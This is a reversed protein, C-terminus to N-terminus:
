SNGVERGFIGEPRILLVVVLLILATMGQYRPNYAMVVLTETFGIIYAGVISGRVSGLGGLIVIAFSLVLQDLGMNWSGTNLMMLLVGAFGALGAAIMWTYLNIRESNIGVLKAGKSSMSTALLAKGTKTYNVFVFIGAIIAWALVFIVLRFNNIEHGSVITTGEVLQTASITGSSIFLRFLHQLLFGAILTVILITVPRDQIARIVSVYMIAGVVAGAVTGAVLGLWPNHGMQNSVVFVAFAGTTILAGHAFNLVGGIGFILTFGIAILAYVASITIANILFSTLDFSM